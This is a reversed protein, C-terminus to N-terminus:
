ATPLRRCPAGPAASSARAARNAAVHAATARSHLADRARNEPNAENFILDNRRQVMASDGGRLGRPIDQKVDDINKRSAPTRKGTRPACTM